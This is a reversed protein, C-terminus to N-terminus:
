LGLFPFVERSWLQNTNLFSFRNIFNRGVASAYGIDEHCFLYNMSHVKNPLWMGWRIALQWDSGPVKQRHAGPGCFVARVRGPLRAGAQRSGAGHGPSTVAVWMPPHPDQVPKPLVNRAPMRFSVGDFSFADQTWMKPIAQVYEDWSVKTIDPENGSAGWSRGPPRAHPAWNARARKSLIDLVAAREAIRVPHNVGPVCVVAGHCLRIRETQTALATLFLEPASSHSYEELFHHEVVWAHDFGLEDALKAEALANLYAASESERTFPRPVSLEFFVGFEM